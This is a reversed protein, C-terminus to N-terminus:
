ICSPAFTVQSEINLSLFGRTLNTQAVRYVSNRCTYIWSKNRDYWSHIHLLILTALHDRTSWTTVAWPLFNYVQGSDNNNDTNVNKCVFYLCFADTLSLQIKFFFFFKVRICSRTETRLSDDYFLCILFCSLGFTLSPLNKEDRLCM